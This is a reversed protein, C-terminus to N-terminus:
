ERARTFSSKTDTSQLGQNASVRTAAGLALQYRQMMVGHLDLKGRLPQSLDAAIRFSLADRFQTSFLTPNEIRCTYILEADEEDTLILRRGKADDCVFEFPIKDDLEGSPDYLKRVVLCDAPVQYAFDWGSYTDPLLALVQRRRAFNWDHDELVTDRLTNYLLKVTRAEKTPSEFSSITGAGVHNLALNCIEIASTAM